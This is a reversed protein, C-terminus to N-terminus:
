QFTKFTQEINKDIVKKVSEMETQLAEQETDLQKLKMELTRDEQQIIETKANIEEIQQNYLQQQYNYENMADNYANEDTVTNANLDFSSSDGKIKISSYRGSNTSTVYADDTQYIKKDINAAYYSTLSTAKGSTSTADALDSESYYNVTGNTNTYKYAGSIDSLTQTSSNYGCDTALQISPNDKCIQLLANYDDHYYPDSTNQVCQNLQTKKETTGNTLWYPDATTGSGMVGLDSRTKALGSYTSQNYYYSVTKNYDPDGSLSNISTINYDNDGDSFSYQVTTYDSTSPPIPVNLSMMRTFLGASENSLNVRQQNIQQGEYEVNTKRATLEIYRAQSAAMGM